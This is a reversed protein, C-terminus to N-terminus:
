GAVAHMRQRLDETLRVLGDSVVVQYDTPEELRLVGAPLAEVARLAHGQIERMPPGPRLRRGRRMVPSLLARGQGPPPERDTALVDHTVAGCDAVRWVQKPGPYTGKGRSLKLVPQVLGARDVEVLKYVGGLAPADSSTSLATGVGFIDIPARDEVLEAIRREDLDGSAFIRTGRLGAADLRARIARSEALLDGSDLRVGFPSLGAAAIRDVARESDYTDILLVTRDGYMDIFRIFAEKESDHSMVWSHAMTGALPLGFALGAEVDSTGSCGGIFAARGALAGAEAGHARRAGLEFVPRGAAARVVRSARSAVSTQFLVTSLLATEVIQGEILPATVRLLPENPFVPEGEAVAWVDGSFRFGPLYDDFFGAPARRLQPIQRLYEIDAATFRLGELYVLALEIGAALLYGRDRPLSRVSLEFTARPPAGAGYHGAAMTLEYLDTSLASPM